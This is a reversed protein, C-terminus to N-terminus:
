LTNLSNSLFSVLAFQSKSRVQCLVIKASEPIYIEMRDLCNAEQILQLTEHDFNVNLKSDIPHTIILTAQLGTKSHDISQVWAHYCLFEFEALIRAVKNCMKIGKQM